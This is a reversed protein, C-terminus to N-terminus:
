FEEAISNKKKKITFYCAITSVFIQVCSTIIMSYAAGMMGSTPVLFWNCVLNTMVVTGILYPQIKFNRMATLAFGLFSTIYSLGFYIMLVVLLQNYQAFDKTYLMELINEGWMMTVLMGSVLMLMGVTIFKLLMSIFDKLRDELYYKALRPSAAQGLAMIVINGAFPIYAISSFYGLEETGIFHELFYRPINENLSILMMVIGLPLSELTLKIIKKKSFELKVSTLKRANKLDYFFLMLFRIFVFSFLIALSLNNTTFLVLCLILLTMIGKIILSKSVLDMVENKQLVGSILDSISEIAKAVAIIMVILKTEANYNNFFCLIIIVMLAILTSICRLSLYIGFTFRNNIDTIQVQRLQLNAFMYIPATVALALSYLGVAHSGLMKALVMIIAWQSAAYIINGILTWSFNAM